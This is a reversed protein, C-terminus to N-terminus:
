RCVRITCARRPCRALTCTVRPLSNNFVPISISRQLQSARLLAASRELNAQAMRLDINAVLAGSVLEDLQASTYLRWWESPALEESFAPDSSSVFPGHAAPANVVASQPPGQYDPGVSRCGVSGILWASLGFWMPLLKM